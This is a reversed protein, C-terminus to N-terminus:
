SANRGPQSRGETDGTAEPMAVGPAYWADAVGVAWVVLLGLVVTVLRDRHRGAVDWALEWARAPDFGPPAAAAADLIADLWRVAFLALLAVTAAILLIGRVPAGLHLQGAGPLVLGSLAVAKLRRKERPSSM